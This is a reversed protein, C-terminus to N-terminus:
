CELSFGQEKLRKTFESDQELSIFTFKSFKSFHRYLAKQLVAEAESFDLESDYGVVLYPKEYEETNIFLGIVLQNFNHQVNMESAAKSFASLVDSDPKIFLQSTKTMELELNVFMSEDFNLLVDETLDIGGDNNVSFSRLTDRPGYPFSWWGFTKSVQNYQSCKAKLDDESLILIAPSYRIMSMALPSICYQFMVFRAGNSVAELLKEKSDIHSPIELKQTIKLIEFIFFTFRKGM